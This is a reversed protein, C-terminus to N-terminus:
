AGAALLAAILATIQLRGLQAVICGHRGAGFTLVPADAPYPRFTLPDPHAESDLNVSGLALFVPLGAEINEIGGVLVLYANDVVQQPSKQGALSAMLNAGQPAPNRRHDPAILGFFAQSTAKIQPETMDLGIFHAQALETIWLEAGNFADFFGASVLRRAPIHAPRDLFPLISAALAAAPYKGSNRPRLASFRSPANGLDPYTRAALIESPRTLLYGGGQVPALPHDRRLSDYIPVPDAFFAQSTLNAPLCAASVGASGGLGDRWTKM